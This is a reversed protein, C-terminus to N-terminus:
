YCWLDISVETDSILTLLRSPSTNSDQLDYVQAPGRQRTIIWGRLPRGLKHEINTTGNALLVNTLVVGDIIPSAIIPELAAGVNDQFKSLNPEDINIVKFSRLM